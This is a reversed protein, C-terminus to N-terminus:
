VNLEQLKEEIEIMSSGVHNRLIKGLCGQCLVTRYKKVEMADLYYKDSLSKVKGM